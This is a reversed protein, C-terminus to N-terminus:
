RATVRRGDWGGAADLAREADDCARQSGDPFATFNDTDFVIDSSWCHRGGQAPLSAWPDAPEFAGCLGGSRIVFREPRVSVEIEHGWGDMPSELGAASALERASMGTAFGANTHLTELSRAMTRIRGMTRKQKGRDLAEFLGALFGIGLIVIACASVILVAVAKWPTRRAVVVLAAAIPVIDLLLVIWSTELAPRCTAQKVAVWLPFWAIVAVSGAIAFLRAIGAPPRPPRRAPSM